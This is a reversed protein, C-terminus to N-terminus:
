LLLLDNQAFPGKKDVKLGKTTEAWPKPGGGEAVVVWGWGKIVM